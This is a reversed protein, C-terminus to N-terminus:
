FELLERIEEQEIRKKWVEIDNEVRKKHRLYKLGSLSPLLSSLYKIREHMYPIMSGWGGWSSAELPLKEFIDPDSNVTVFQLLAQRRRDPAFESISHFLIYMYDDNQNHKEIMNQIWADQRSVIETESEGHTLLEEFIDHCYWKYKSKKTYVYDFIYNIQYMFDEKYWVKQLRRSFSKQRGYRDKVAELLVDLYKAIFHPDNQILCLLLDGYYDENSSCTVCKLYIDELLCLNDKYQALLDSAKINYPNLWPSFYLSFIFPTEDYYRNIIVSAKIIVEQDVCEYKKLRNLSRYENSNLTKSPASLYELLEKEVELTIQEEPMETYYLWQWLNQESYECGMIIDKVSEANLLSFLRQLISGPYVNYPTDYRLYLKVVEVYLEKPLVEFLHDIGASLHREQKEFSLCCEQCVQILFEYDDISYNKVLDRIRRHRYNEAKEYGLELIKKRDGKLISYIIFKSSERFPIFSDKCNFRARRAIDEIHEAIVCHYINDTDFLSCLKLIGKIDNRVIEWDIDERFNGCYDKLLNEIESTFRGEGYIDILKEWLLNRYSMIDETYPLSLVYTVVTNHRGGEVKSYALKLFHEAVRIFLLLNNDSPDEKIATCLHEIATKQTYYGYHASDKDFEFQTVFASYIQDFTQPQKKYHILMLDLAAPFQPHEKFDCLVNVIDDTISQTGKNKDFGVTCVDFSYSEEQEIQTQILLLADTPRIMHFARFFSDFKESKTQLRDWVINLQQEVNSQFTKDSFISFLINCASITRGQNISFCVEVMLNLPIIEKDMFVYKILFNSFSQDSIKAAKDNCLDVLELIHLHRIDEIFQEKTMQAATYIPVFNELYELHVSQLFAIIGASIIMTKSTIMKEIQKGYYNSYLESADRISDIKGANSALKGALIALRANGEAIAVIRDAYLHNRINYNVEILKRIDDDKLIGLKLIKPKEVEFVKRVVDQRAYDRVTIIIKNIHKSKGSIKPLYELVFHLGSLENADDIFVLYDKGADIAAALDEYLELGNSKICLVEYNNEASFLRCLELALRTKGTGAPGSIVLVNGSNLADKAAELEKERFLFETDLPASMKNADHDSIFTELTAIQGTDVSIGLHDKALFTYHLYLDNAIEDLGILTLAVKHKECNKRLFQDDGPLLRGYTHCYIIEAVDTVSIGTKQPDFCKEFDEAAKNVFNTKQTTYMVFIYKKDANLFYTDPNGKATKDTGAHMGLSYGNGYGRCALYADCLNQFAGGDLQDIKYKIDTLKSM